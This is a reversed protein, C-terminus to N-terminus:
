DCHTKRYAMELLADFRQRLEDDAVILNLIKNVKAKKATADVNWM